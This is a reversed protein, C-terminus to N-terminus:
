ETRLNKVPNALAARISQFSITALAILAAIVGAILFIWWPITIRYAFDQLWSHMAYWAVPFAIVAAIIVLKLFDKSLLTVISGISAGLVKRIGIEKVRQSITFASLGFLGLCAILIAIIAFATFISEQRQEAEYLREFNTDIFTYDYPTEPLYKKWVKEIFALNSTINNGSLKVSVRNLWNPNSFFILPVIKQHLSEFHFDKAVGIVRGRSGGYILEKNIADQPSKWGLVSAATENIVYGSSDTRYATSFNRGAAISIGYTPIFNYDVSVMKLDVQLPKVTDNAPIAVDQADLL